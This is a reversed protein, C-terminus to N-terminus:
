RILLPSFEYGNTNILDDLKWGPSLQAHGRVMTIRSREITIKEIMGNCSACLMSLEFVLTSLAPTKKWETPVNFGAWHSWGWDEIVYRGGTRLLGFLNEFARRTPSYLHSADDIILDPPSGDFLGSVMRPLNEDDQSTRFLLNTRAAIEPHAHLVEDIGSIPYSQDVGVYKLDKDILPFLIAMGGQWIGLELVRTVRQDVIMEAYSEVWNRPKLIVVEQCTTRRNFDTWDLVFSLGGLEFHHDDIFNFMELAASRLM